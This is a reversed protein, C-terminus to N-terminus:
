GQDAHSRMGFSCEGESLRHGGRFDFEPQRDGLLRAVPGFSKRHIPAPGLKELAALHERTGYGKHRAFGYGPFKEDMATMMRDRTVKAMISAAAISASLCDGKVIAQSPAPLGPVPLGDVLIFDCPSPLQLVALRMAKHTARLVNLEDVEAASICALAIQVGPLAQIEDFLRERRKATLCKSDTLGLPLCAAAPLVVAACVVPGALPGRGVEDVGAICRYGQRCAVQEYGLLDPVDADPGSLPM